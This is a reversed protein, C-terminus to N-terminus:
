VTWGISPRSARIKLLSLVGFREICSQTVCFTYIMTAIILFPTVSELINSM